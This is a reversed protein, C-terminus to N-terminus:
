LIKLIFVAGGQTSNTATLTWGHQTIIRHTLALGVGHGKAKTTFFPIFIKQLNALPIGSGTDRVEIMAPGTSVFVKRDTKEDDIAEAGNRMLNLLALRLMREDARVQLDEQADVVLEVRLEQFLPELEAACDSILEKISVQELQLPQPRAFNLFATVMSSLNRVENLLS